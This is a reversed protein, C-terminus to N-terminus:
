STFLWLAGIIIPQHALYILLSNRGMLSLMKTAANPALFPKFQWEGKKYLKKGFFIGLLVIGFWPLLPFYDLSRFTAPPLGLWFLLPTQVTIANFSIFLGAAIATGGFVLLAKDLRVFFCSLLIALAIFHLVGFLIFGGHPYIWTAATVLMAIAFLLMARKFSKRFFKQDDATRERSIAISVGVLFLMLTAIFRQFILWGGEYMANPFINLYNLDFFFHYIVVLAIGIGRLVDLELFRTSQPLSNQMLQLM